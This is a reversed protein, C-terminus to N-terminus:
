SPWCHRWMSGGSRGTTSPRSASWHLTGQSGHIERLCASSRRLAPPAAKWASTSSEGSGIANISESMRTLKTFSASTRAAPRGAETMRPRVIASAPSEVSMAARQSSATRVTSM